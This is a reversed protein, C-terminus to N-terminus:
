SLISEIKKKAFGEALSKAVSFITKISSNKFDSKIIEWIENQNMLEIFEHGTATLRIPIDSWSIEGDAGQHIGDSSDSLTQIFGYDLVLEYHLLFEQNFEQLDLNNLVETLYPRADNASEIALLLNKIYDHNIKM